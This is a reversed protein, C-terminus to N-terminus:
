SCIEDYLSEFARAMASATFREAAVIRGRDGMRRRLEADDLLVGLARALEVADDPPVLLGTEGEHVAEAVSGVDSAVVALAALMAEVIALPFGELRSPLVFVDFTPLYARANNSWGTVVLRDAVGLESALSELAVREPGDGVLVATVRPLSPLARVLVDFSKQPVLRGLSGIVPGPRTRALPPPLSHPVGNYITRVSGTPLGIAQEVM